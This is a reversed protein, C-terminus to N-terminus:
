LTRLARGLLIALSKRGLSLVHPTTLARAQRGHRDIVVRHAREISRERLPQACQDGSLALRNSEATIRSQLERRGLDLEGAGPGDNTQLRREGGEIGDDYLPLARRAVRAIGM